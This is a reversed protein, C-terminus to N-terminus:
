GGLCQQKMTANSILGCADTRGTRRSIDFICEDKRAIGSCAAVDGKLVTSCLAGYDPAKVSGCANADAGSLAAQFYCDDRNLEVNACVGSGSGRSLFQIYCVDRDATGDIFGCYTTSNHNYAATKLCRARETDTGLLTCSRKEQEETEVAGFETDNVVSGKPAFEVDEIKAKPDFLTANFERLHSEGVLTSNYSWYLTFGTEKDVCEQRQDIIYPATKRDYGTQALDADGMNEFHIRYTVLQCPRNAFTKEVIPGAAAIVGLDVWRKVDTDNPAPIQGQAFKLMNQHATSSNGDVMMCAGRESICIYNGEKLLYFQRAVGYGDVIDVRQSEGRVVAKSLIPTSGDITTGGELVYTTVKLSKEVASILLSTGNVGGNGNGGPVGAKGGAFYFIGAVVLLAAVIVVITRTEM